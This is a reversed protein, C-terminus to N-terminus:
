RVIEDERYGQPYLLATLDAHDIRARASRAVVPKAHYAVGLGAEALMDLDNAGDGVAMSAAVPVQQAEALAILRARKADRGLIPEVVEGTLKGDRIELRNAQDMDFGVADRVFGTYYSFGGSVLACYAGHRHMTAVLARAGSMIRINERTRALASEELGKLLGVRERLAGEFDLEGNMARATIAAIHDRLGVEGALEDLMENEIITSEMDAVLLRKRRGEAPQAVADIPAPEVAEVALDVADGLELGDFPLDVALGYALWDLAGVAAGAGRLTMEVHSVTSEDLRGGGTILTLVNDMALCDTDQRHMDSLSRIGTM